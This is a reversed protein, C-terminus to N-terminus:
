EVLRIRTQAVNRVGAATCKAEDNILSASGTLEVKAAVIQLCGNGATSDGAFRVERTKAYIAGTLKMETGGSFTNTELTGSPSYSAAAVPDEIFLMGSFDGSTPAILEVDAGSSINFVGVYATKKDSAGPDWASIIFTVDTGTVTAGAAISLDGEDIVYVGPNFHVVAGATIQIGGCYAATNTTYNPNLKVPNGLTGGKVVGFKPEAGSKCSGSLKPLLANNILHDYYPDEIRESLTQPPTSTILGGHPDDIDGFVQAPEAELKASGGVIQLAANSSSNSAVGCNVTVTGNGSVTVAGDMTNDLALICHQGTTVVAGVSRGEVSVPGNLVLGAFMLQSQESVIVEVFENTQNPGSLPPRNVEITLISNDELFGARKAEEFALNELKGDTVNRDRNVEMIAALAINDALTQNERRDLYWMTVDLGLGAMGLVIPMAFAVMVMSGGAKELTLRRLPASWARLRQCLTTEFNTDRTM